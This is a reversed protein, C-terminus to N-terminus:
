WIIKKGTKLYWESINDFRDSPVIIDKINFNKIKKTQPYTYIPSYLFIAPVEEAIIEQFKKYKAKREEQKSLQRADELIQDVEKNQFNAVNYGGENTQTSHWFIYPDPDAGYVQGYLLVDFKRNKIVESQLTAVPVIDIHTKVGLNEWYKKVSDGVKIYEERDVTVFTVEFYEGAKKRWSGVGLSAIKEANTKIKTDKSELDKKADAVMKETIEDRKWDVSELLSNAKDKNFDYKKIENNYAFNNPLIPGDVVYAGGNLDTNVIENKDLGYALAQRISKDALFANRSQNFFLVSLQPLYLKNFNFNKQMTVEEKRGFPLYSIGDILNSNLAQIAEDIISYFKFNVNVLPKTGYYDDNVVLDYEKLNGSKEKILKDFKYPGSGIPKKNLEVTLASEPSVQYWKESPLIGFNLLDLFAVYSNALVFKFSTEDIKEIEVGIFSSRLPSKYRPEKLANFTFIIDDVTLNTGDHWHINNKIKFTYIKSDPSVDYSEILDKELQGDKNRKFLSSYVLSAIDKDVDNFDVYLPNINVPVGVLGETYVGGSLPVEQIHTLYFRTGLFVFSVFVIFLSIRMVLIEKPSLYKNIYKLQRLNPIRSKSLSYVLKRDVDVATRLNKRKKFDAFFGLVM